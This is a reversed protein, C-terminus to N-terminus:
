HPWKQGLACCAAAQIVSEAGSSTFPKAASHSWSPNLTSPAASLVQIHGSPLSPCTHGNPSQIAVLFYPLSYSVVTCFFVEHWISVQVFTESSTSPKPFAVVSCYLPQWHSPIATPKNQLLCKFQETCFTKFGEEDENTCSIVQHNNERKQMM